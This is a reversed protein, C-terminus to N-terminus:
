SSKRSWRRLIETSALIVQELGYGVAADRAPCPYPTGCSYCLDGRRTHAEAMDLCVRGAMLRDPDMVRAYHHETVEAAKAELLAEGLMALDDGSTPM